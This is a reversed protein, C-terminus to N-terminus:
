IPSRCMLCYRLIMAAYRKLTRCQCDIAHQLILFTEYCCLVCLCGFLGQGGIADELTEKIWHLKNFTINAVAQDAALELNVSLQRTEKFIVRGWWVLDYNVQM